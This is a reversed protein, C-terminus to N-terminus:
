KIELYNVRDSDVNGIKGRFFSNFALSVRTHRGTTTNVRHLMSSPFLVIDGTEVPVGVEIASFDNAIETEIQFQPIDKTQFSISDVGRVANIYLCGSVISNPHTHLHHHEGFDTFNLWSQTLTLRVHKPNKPQYVHLFYMDLSRQIIKRLSALPPLALVDVDESSNNGMNESTKKRFSMVFDIEEQTIARDMPMQMVAKPFVRLVKVQM